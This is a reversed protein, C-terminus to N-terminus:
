PAQKLTPDNLKVVEWRGDKLVLEVQQQIRVKGEGWLTDVGEPNVRSVQHAVIFSRKGDDSLRRDEITYYTFVIEVGEFLEKRAGERALAERALPNRAVQRAVYSDQKLLAKSFRKYAIVDGSTHTKVCGFLQYALVGFIIWYIIKKPKM